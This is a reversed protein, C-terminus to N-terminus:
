KIYKYLCPLMKDIDQYQNNSTANVTHQLTLKDMVYHCTQRAISTM